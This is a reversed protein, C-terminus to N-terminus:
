SNLPPTRYLFPPITLRHCLETFHVIFLNCHVLYSSWRRSSIHLLYWLKTSFRFLFLLFSCRRNGHCGILCVTWFKKRIVFFKARFRGRRWLNYLRELIPTFRLEMYILLWPQLGSDTMEYVNSVTPRKSLSRSLPPCLPVVRLYWSHTTSRDRLGHDLIADHRTLIRAQKSFPTTSKQALRPSVGRSPAM